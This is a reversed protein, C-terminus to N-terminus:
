VSNREIPRNQVVRDTIKSSEFGACRVRPFSSSSSNTDIRLYLFSPFPTCLGVTTYVTISFLMSGVLSWDCEVGNETGMLSCNRGDYNDKNFEIVDAAYQQVISRVNDLADDLQSADDNRLYSHGVSWLKQAAAEEVALYRSERQRCQELENSSELVQVRWILMLGMMMM